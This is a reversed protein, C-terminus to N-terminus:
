PTLTGLYAQIAAADRYGPVFAGQVLAAGTLGLLHRVILLGDTLADVTGNGDIDLASPNGDLYAKIADADARSATAGVAGITLAPGTIGFLYRLVLVGDTMADYKTQTVSADVDLTLVPVVEFAGVDTGDGGSPNGIAANDSRRSFGPGRQDMFLVGGIGNASGKDIAPSGPQLAHTLTPGGNAQLDELLPDIPFGPNPLQDTFDVPTVSAGTMDGVLNFGQSIFPGNIDPGSGSTNKAVITSKLTLTGGNAVRLGGGLDGLNRAITSNTITVKGVNSFLAGGSDTTGGPGIASNGSLTSNVISLVGGFNFIGGGSGGSAPDSVTNASLTSSNVTVTGFNNYLGGGNLARNDSLVVANLTLTGAVLIGGGVGSTGLNGKAITLGSISGNFSAGIDFIRFLPTGALASRAITLVNAGPGDIFLSKNFTLGTALTITGTLNPAFVIHSGACANTIAARLSGAGSDLLNIVSLVGGGCGPLVDAQVEYAGIDSGDGVNAIATSDVPRSLGRQDTTYGSSHGAEIALSGSGLAHTQTPGGNDGLVGLNLQNATVGVHDGTTAPFFTVAGVINYGQSVVTGNCDPDIGANNLAVISNRLNSMQGFGTAETLIGGGTSATNNTITSNTINAVGTKNYIGGGGLSAINASVTSNVVNLTTNHFFGAGAAATNGSVTSNTLTLTSDVDTYLGGGNGTAANSAIVSASITVNASAYKIGAGVDSKGNTITVGSIAVTVRTGLVSTVNFIRFSPTNQAFSRQITLQRAGPGAITLNKTIALEASTLTITSGGPLAFDITDGAAATAIAQRLTCGAGPCSGGADNTSTVTLTGAVTGGAFVALFLALLRNMIGRPSQNSDRLLSMSLRRKREITPPNQQSRHPTGAHLVPQNIAASCIQSVGQFGARRMWSTSIAVLSGAILLWVLDM